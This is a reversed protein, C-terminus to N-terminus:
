EPVGQYAANGATQGGDVSVDAGTIFRSADGALFLVVDAVEDPQGLRNLAVHDTSFTVQSTMPTQFQGPHISNVRIGYQGLELAVIKSFGRVAWKSAGYGSMQPFGELAGASGINVISGGGARKMGPLVAQIGHFVGLLNVDLLRQIREATWEEFPGTDVVGANNVLIDVTGFRKETEAVVEAWAKPDRVDLPLHITTGGLQKALTTAAETNVDAIVVNAGEAAFREVTAGGLGMAGGTVIATKGEFHGM